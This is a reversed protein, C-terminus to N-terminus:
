PARAAGPEVSVGFRRVRVALPPLRNNPREWRLRRCVLVTDVPKAPEVLAREACDVPRRPDGPVKIAPEVRPRMEARARLAGVGDDTVEVHPGADPVKPKGVEARPVEFVEVGGDSADSMRRGIRRGLSQSPQELGPAICPLDGGRPKPADVIDQVSVERLSRPLLDDGAVGGRVDLEGGAPRGLREDPGLLTNLAPKAGPLTGARDHNPCRLLSPEEEVEDGLIAVVREPM